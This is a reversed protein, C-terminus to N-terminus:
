RCLNFLLLHCDLSVAAGPAGIRGQPGNPGPLGQFVIHLKLAAIYHTHILKHSTHLWLQCVLEIRDHCM